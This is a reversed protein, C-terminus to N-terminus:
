RPFFREIGGFGTPVRAFCLRPGSFDGEGGGDDGNEDGGNEPKVKFTAVLGFSKAKLETTAKVRAM